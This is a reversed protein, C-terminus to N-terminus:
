RLRVFECPGDTGCTQLPRIDFDAADYQGHHVRCLTILTQRTTRDGAPNGGMGRHRLHCVDIPMSMARYACGPFQCRDGDRHRAERMITRAEARRREARARRALLASGKAPKSLTAM